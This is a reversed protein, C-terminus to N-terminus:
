RSTVTVKKVAVGTVRSLTAHVKVKSSLYNSVSQALGLALAVDGKAFGTFTVSEGPKLKKALGSLSEKARDSLTDSRGSFLVTLTEPRSAIRKAMTIMTAASSVLPNSGEAEETATVICTGESSANLTGNKISCGTATGNVVSFSVVRGASRGSTLLVLATGSRGSLSTITLPTGVVVPPAANGSESTPPPPAGGGGGGGGGSPAAIGTGSMTVTQAGSGDNGELIWTASAAGLATPSFQVTEQLSTNAPITTGDALITSAAFGNVSPPTSTTIILPEGGLDSVEFNITATSGVAVDGFSLQTPAINIQAPPNASGSLPVGFNGSSTELTVVGGYVHDFDGSSGPPTFDVTFSVKAGPNITANAPPNPVAFPLAPDSFGTITVASASVNTFTVSQNVMPGDIPQSSFDLTAPAASLPSTSSLGQGSLAVTVTAGTVDATLSGSLGGIANPAFTVPVTITQGVSLAAPLSQSPTGLAFASGQSTFASVTTASTATFQATAVNTQSVTTPTFDVNDGTLTPTASALVGFGILNGDGTGVFITGNDVGPESFKAADGIAASWVEQLTGQPGPNQPIPNYAQLQANAQGAVDDHVIWLLSSGSTTGNSTIIPLGSGFGFQNASSSTTGVLQFWVAGSASVMRQFVNISGGDTSVFSGTGATPIYVYGGDGPWVAARSWVGGDPGTEAPIADSGVGNTNVPGDQYGGLSNMNLEYIVGEKGAALMVNPEQPTGMSAPLAVVGGSGLDGDQTNLSAADSPIFYDVLHLKGTATSLEVVAEGFNHATASAPGPSPLNGNGTAFYIDGQSDVVPASGSQWIGGGGGGGNPLDVGTETAYMTTISASDESVGIVWGTWNGYDCQSGFAAYVVGNVLVLGPRQDQWQGDFVTGADDDASGQILVGGAPWGSPTAGTQVNVADMYFQTAGSPGDSTAAVFYATDTAPDIVPTGTIGMNAGIDGCGTQALPDAQPGFNRTWEIAGTSTNLGYANDDETVALVTPQSILPQAYVAGTLQTNFLEGFDGGSVVSPALQPEDPYWGTDLNDSSM